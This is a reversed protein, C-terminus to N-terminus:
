DSPLPSAQGHFSGTFRKSRGTNRFTVMRAMSHLKCWKENKSELTAGRASQAKMLRQEAKKDDAQEEGIVSEVGSDDGSEDTSM